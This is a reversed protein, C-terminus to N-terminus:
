YYAVGCQREIAIRIAEEEEWEQTESEKAERERYEKEKKM